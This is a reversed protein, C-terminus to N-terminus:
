LSAVLSARQPKGIATRPISEVIHIHQPACYAPLTEKVQGRVDDLSIDSGPSTVIWAHVSHGWTPDPVGGVCVEQIRAHTIIADEVMEPWVNEGGTIILDGERGEVTLVGTPSLSGRDGTRFWGDSDLPTIGDRYCRFMMPCKIFIVSDRIEIEVNDLPIGDYVVGSGTETMGYTTVSNSPRDVPPRAGGLVITRYLSADVRQLATAVLSVMTAGNNSAEIYSSESFLPVAIVRNGMVLSRTIVSLGGVHSPPLCALWADDGSVQLRNSTAEASAIVANMTLVVAKPNGTSGSTAVVLADGPEVHTGSLQAENNPSVIITPSVANILKAKATAPLRQDLPFVADGEDWAQKLRDVFAPGNPLDICVLENM